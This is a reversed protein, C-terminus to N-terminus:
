SVDEDDHEPSKNPQLHFRFIRQQKADGMRAKGEADVTWIDREVFMVRGDRHVLIVTSLRTGYLPTDDSKPLPIQLPEIQITNRLDARLRPPM